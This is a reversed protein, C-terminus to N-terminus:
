QKNKSKKSIIKNVPQEALVTGSALVLALWGVLGCRAFQWGCVLRGIFEAGTLWPSNHFQRPNRLQRSNRVLQM